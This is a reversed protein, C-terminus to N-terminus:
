LLLCIYLLKDKKQKLNFSRTFCLICLLWAYRSLLVPFLSRGSRRQIMEAEKITKAIKTTVRERNNSNTIRAGAFGSVLTMVVIVVDIEVVATGVVSVADVTVRGDGMIIVFDVDIV